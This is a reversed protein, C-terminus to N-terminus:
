VETTVGGRGFFGLLKRLCGVPLFVDNFARLLHLTCVAAASGFCGVANRQCLQHGPPFIFAWQPHTAPDHSCISITAPLLCSTHLAQARQLGLASETACMRVVSPSLGLIAFIKRRPRRMACRCFRFYSSEPDRLPDWCRTATM